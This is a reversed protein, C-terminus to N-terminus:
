GSKQIEFYVRVRPELCIKFVKQVPDTLPVPSTVVAKWPESESGEVKVTAVREGFGFHTRLEYCQEGRHLRRTVGYYGYESLSEAVDKLEKRFRAIYLNDTNYIATLLDRLWKM